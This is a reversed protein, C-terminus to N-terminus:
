AKRMVITPEMARDTPETMRKRFFCQSQVGGCGGTEASIPTRSYKLPFARLPLAAGGLRTRARHGQQHPSVGGEGRLARRGAHARLCWLRGLPCHASRPPTPDFPWPLVRLGTHGSFFFSQPAQAPPSARPVRFSAPSVGASCRSLIGASCAPGPVPGQFTQNLRATCAWELIAVGSRRQIGTFPLGLLRSQIFIGCPSFTPRKPGKQPSSKHYLRSISFSIPEPEPLHSFAWTTPLVRPKEGNGTAFLALGPRFHASVALSIHAPLM